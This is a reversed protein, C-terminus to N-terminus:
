RRRAMQTQQALPQKRCRFSGRAVKRVVEVTKHDKFYGTAMEINM